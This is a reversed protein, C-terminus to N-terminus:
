ERFRTQPDLAASIQEACATLAETAASNRSAPLLTPTGILAVAAVLNQGHRVPAAVAVYGSQPTARMGIGTQRTHEIDQNLGIIAEEPLRHTSASMVAAQAPSGFTRWVQSHAAVPSLHTGVPVTLVLEYSRDPSVHVVVPGTDGLVSLTSTLRVKHTLEDMFEPAVRLVDQQGWHFASVQTMLNGLEFHSGQRTLLGSRTMSQLYRYATTRNLGLNEAIDAATLQERHPGYLGLIRAMRTVAQIDGSSGGNM